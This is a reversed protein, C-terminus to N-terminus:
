ACSLINKIHTNLYNGKSAANIFGSFIYEPVNYYQYVSGNIFEVEFIHTESDYGASRINSSVVPNRDM